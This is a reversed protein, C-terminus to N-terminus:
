NQFDKKNAGSNEAPNKADPAFLLGSATRADASVKPRNENV